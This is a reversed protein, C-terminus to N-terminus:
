ADGRGSGSRPEITGTAFQARDSCYWCGAPPAGYRPVPTPPPPPIEDAEADILLEDALDVSHERNTRPSIAKRLKM